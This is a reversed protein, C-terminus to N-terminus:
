EHREMYAEEQEGLLEWMGELAEKLPPIHEEPLDIENLANVIKALEKFYLLYGMEKFANKM